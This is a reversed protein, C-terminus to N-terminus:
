ATTKELVERLRDLTKVTETKLQDSRLVNLVSSYMKQLLRQQNRPLGKPESISDRLGNALIYFTAQAVNLADAAVGAAASLTGVGGSMLSLLNRFNVVRLQHPLLLVGHHESSLIASICALEADHVGGDLSIPSGLAGVLQCVILAGFCCGIIRAALDQETQFHRTIEPSALVLPFLSPLPNSTQRRVKACHWLVKPCMRLYNIRAEERSEFSSTGLICM